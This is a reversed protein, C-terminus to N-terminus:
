DCTVYILKVFADIIEIRKLQNPLKRDITHKDADTAVILRNSKNAPGKMFSVLRLYFM